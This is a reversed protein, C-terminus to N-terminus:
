SRFDNTDMRNHKVHKISEVQYCELHLAKNNSKILVTHSKIHATRRSDARIIIWFYMKCANYVTNVTAFTNYQQTCISSQQYLQSLM